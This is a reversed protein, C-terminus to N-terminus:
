NLVFCFFVNFLQELMKRFCSYIKLDFRYFKSLKLYVLDVTLVISNAVWSSIFNIDFKQPVTITKQFRNM